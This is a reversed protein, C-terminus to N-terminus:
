DDESDDGCFAKILIVIINLFKVPSYDLFNMESKHYSGDSPNTDSIETNKYSTSGVSSSNDEGVRPKKESVQSSDLDSELKRKESKSEESSQILSKIKSNLENHESVLSQREDMLYSKVQNLGEQVTNGSEEDFYSPYEDKIDIIHRNTDRVAEPLKKDLKKASRINKLAEDLNNITNLVESQEKRLQGFEKYKDNPEKSSDTEPNLQSSASETPLEKSVEEPSNGETCLVFGLTSAVFTYKKLNIILVFGITVYGVQSLLINVFDTNNVMDQTILTIM